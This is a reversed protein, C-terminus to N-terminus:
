RSFRVPEPYGVFCDLRLSVIQARADERAIRHLCTRIMELAVVRTKAQNPCRRECVPNRLRKPTSNPLRFFELGGPTHRPRAQLTKSSVLVEYPCEPFDFRGPEVHAPNWERLSPVRSLPVQRREQDGVPLIITSALLGERGLLVPGYRPLDRAH